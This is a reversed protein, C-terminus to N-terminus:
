NKKKWRLRRKNIQNIAKRIRELMIERDDENDYIFKINDIIIGTDEHPGIDKCKILDIWRDTHIEIIM